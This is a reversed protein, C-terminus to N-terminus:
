FLKIRCKRKSKKNTKTVALWGRWEYDEEGYLGLNGELM